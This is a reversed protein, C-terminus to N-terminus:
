NTHHLITYYLINYYPINPSVHLITGIPINTSYQGAEMVGILYDDNLTFNPKFKNNIAFYIMGGDNGIVICPYSIGTKIEYKDVDQRIRCM